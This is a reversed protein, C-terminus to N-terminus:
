KAEFNFLNCYLGNEESLLEKHTGRQIIQGDSFVIIEDCLKIPEIKHSIIYDYSARKNDAILKM